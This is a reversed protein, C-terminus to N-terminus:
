APKSCSIFNVLIYVRVRLVLGQTYGKGAVLDNGLRKGAAVLLVNRVFYIGKFYQRNM